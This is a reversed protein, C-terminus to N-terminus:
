KINSIRTKHYQEYNMILNVPNTVIHWEEELKCKRVEELGSNLFEQDVFEKFEEPLDNLKKRCFKFLWEGMPFNQPYSKQKKRAYRILRASIYSVKNGLLEAATYEGKKAYPIDSLQPSLADTIGAIFESHFLRGSLDQKKNLYWKAYGALMELYDIDMFPNVVYKFHMGFVNSDQSHHATGYYYWTYIFKKEKNNYGKGKDILFRIQEYIRDVNINYPNVGRSRLQKSILHKADDPDMKQLQKFFLPIVKDDYSPEKLFEGGLLGTFLMGEGPLRTSEQEAADYRHARHINILSGGADVLKTAVKGLWEETPDPLAYNEHNLGSRDALKRSIVSDHSRPDGYTFGNLNCPINQLGALIMRSDNGGTLTFTVREPKLFDIYGRLIDLWGSTFYDITHRSPARSKLLKGPDWYTRCTLREGNYVIIGAPDSTTVGSFMTSNGIFHSFLLFMASNEKDAVLSYHSSILKLSNSIYFENGNEYVFYKKIGSRDSFILFKDKFIIIITFIGKISHIFSEGSRLYLLRIMNEQTHDKFEDFCLIRPVVYGDIFIRFYDGKESPVQLNTIFGGPDTRGNQLSTTIFWEKAGPM